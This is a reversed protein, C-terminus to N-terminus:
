DKTCREIQNAASWIRYQGLGGTATIGSMKTSSFHHSRKEMVLYKESFLKLTMPNEPMAFYYIPVSEPINMFTHLLGRAIKLFHMLNLQEECLEDCVNYGSDSRRSPHERPINLENLLHQELFVKKMSKMFRDHTNEGRSHRRIAGFYHELIHTGCSGLNLNKECYLLSVISLTLMIYQSSWETTFCLYKNAISSFGFDLYKGKAEIIFKKNLEYLIMLSAGIMLHDIRQKRSLLESHIGELLLTCPLMAFFLGPDDRDLITCLIKTSFLKLPLIDEMKRAQEDSLIYDPIDLGQLDIVSYVSSENWPDVIFSEKSIKRYRDRKALHFPDSFHCIRDFKGIINTVTMESIKKIDNMLYDLFGRSISSYQHDGDSAIGIVQIGNIELLRRTEEINKLTTETATGHIAPICCIPVARHSADIPLLMLVFEARILKRLNSTIFTTFKEEDEILQNALKQCIMKLGLLGSVSGNCHVSVYPTVHAADIALIARSNFDVPFCKQLIVTINELTGDFMNEDYTIDQLIQNRYSQATRYSPFLLTTHLLGYYHPGMFSLLAFYKELSKYRRGQPLRLKNDSICRLLRDILQLNDPSDEDNRIGDNTSGDVERAKNKALSLKVTSLKFVKKLDKESKKLKRRANLLQFFMSSEQTITM